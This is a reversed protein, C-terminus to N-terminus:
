VYELTRDIKPLLYAIWLLPLLAITFRYPYLYELGLTDLAIDIVFTTFFIAVGLLLTLLIGIVIAQLRMTGRLTKLHKTEEAQLPMEAILKAQANEDYAESELSNVAMLSQNFLNFILEIKQGQRFSEFHTDEVEIQEENALKFYWYDYTVTRTRRNKGTGTTERRKIQKHYKDQLVTHVRKKKNFKLNQHHRTYLYLWIGIPILMMVSYMANQLYNDGFFFATLVYSSVLAILGLIASHKQFQRRFFAKDEESLAETWEQHTVKEM